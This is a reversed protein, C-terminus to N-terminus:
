NGVNIFRIASKPTTASGACEPPLDFADKFSGDDKASFGLGRKAFGAYIECHNNGKSLNLEATLVADRAQVFTPNCPQLKLANTLIQLMMTNGKGGSANQLNPDFGLKDVLNWYIEYLMSAWIEGIKHIEQTDSRALFSYTEPNTSLSTSYPFTRVGGASGSVYQGVVMNDNRTNSATMRFTIAYFDSWGEGMGGSQLQSLCNAQAPGGTLRNTLGHTLEHMVIDDEITGDRNPNTSTFIFMKMRGSQGDPPTAFNANNFGSGDQANAIVPDAGAGGKGFNNQQFNGASETFGYHYLLDHYTNALFFMNTIAADQYDPPQQTKDNLAFDFVFNAATPRHNSSGVAPLNERNEQALVNNGVTTPQSGKGDGTDHWGLPSATLDFPNSVLARDGHLLDNQTLPVIRYSAAQVSAARKSAFRSTWSSLGVLSGDRTNIFGNWWDDETEVSLDWVQQVSDQTQFYRLQARIAKSTLASTGSITAKTHTDDVQLRLSKSDIAVNLHRAFAVVADIPSLQIAEKVITQKRVIFSSGFAVVSGFRDISLNSVANIVVTKEVVQNVYFHYIGTLSDQHVSSIFIESSQVSLTRTLYDLAVIKVQDMGLDNNKSWVLPLRDLNSNRNLVSSNTTYSASSPWYYQPGGAEGNRRDLRVASPSHASRSLPLALTSSCLCWLLAASFAVIVM